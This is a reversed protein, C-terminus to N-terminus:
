ALEGEYTRLELCVHVPTLDEVLRRVAGLDDSHVRPPCIVTLTEPGALPKEDCDVSSTTRGGDRVDFQLGPFALDLVLEVGPVTGRKTAIDSANELLRRHASVPLAADLEVGFWEAILALVEPPALDVDLHAALQDITAVIPDLVQELGALFRLVFAEGAVGGPCELYVTPLSDRLYRRGSANAPAVLDGLVEQIRTDREL